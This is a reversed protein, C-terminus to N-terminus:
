IFWDQQTSEIRRHIHLPDKLPDYTNFLRGIAIKTVGIKGNGPWDPREKRAQDQSLSKFRV